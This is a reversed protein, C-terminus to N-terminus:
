RAVPKVAVALAAPVRGDCDILGLPAAPLPSCVPLAAHTQHHAAALERSNPISTPVTRPGGPRDGAWRLAIRVEHRARHAITIADSFDM